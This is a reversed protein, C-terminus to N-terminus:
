RGWQGHSGKSFYGIRGERIGLPYDPHSALPSDVQPSESPRLIWYKKKKPTLIVHFFAYPYLIQYPNDGDGMERPAVWEGKRPMGWEAEAEFGEFPESLTIKM